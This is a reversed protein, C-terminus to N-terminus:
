EPAQEILAYMSGKCHPILPDIGFGHIQEQKLEAHERSTTLLIVRGSNDVECALQYAREQQFGFIKEIMRIVYDYTHDNDDLLIVHYRPAKRTIPQVQERVRPEAVASSSEMPTKGAVQPAVEQV